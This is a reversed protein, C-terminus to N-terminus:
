ALDDEELDLDNIDDEDDTVIWYYTCQCNPHYPPLDVNEDAAYEGGQCIDCGSEIVLMEANLPKKNEKLKAEIIRTETLHCRDYKKILYEAVDDINDVHGLTDDDKNFTRQSLRRKGEAWYESLREEITKGDKSYTLDFINTISFDPLKKYIQKLYKSTISYTDTLSDYFLDVITNLSKDWNNSNYNKVNTLIVNVIKEFYIERSKDIEKRMIMIDQKIAM